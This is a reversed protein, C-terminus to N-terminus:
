GRLQEYKIYRIIGKKDKYVHSKYHGRLLNMNLNEKLYDGDKKQSDALSEKDNIRWWEISQSQCIDEKTQAAVQEKVDFCVNSQIYYSSGDLNEVRITVESFQHQGGRITDAHVKEGLQLTLSNITPLSSTSSCAPMVSLTSVVLLYLFM